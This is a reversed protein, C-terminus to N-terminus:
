LTLANFRQLTLANFRERDSLGFVKPPQLADKRFVSFQYGNVSLRSGNVM